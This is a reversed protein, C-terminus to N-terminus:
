EAKEKVYSGPAPEIPPSSPTARRRAARQGAHRRAAGAVRVLGAVLQGPGERRGRVLADPTPTSRRRRPHGLLQAQEEGAPQDGRRHPRERRARVDVDGRCCSRARTPRSGRCSTTKRPPTSSRRCTSRRWTWRSASSRPARGARAAQEGPLHQAPVLLVDPRAPQHRRQELVAPRVRAAAKGKLYGNVVYPWILDNARLSPSCRPWSAARSCAARASRRRGRPSAEGPHGAARDRRHRQLRADDDAADHQGGPARRARGAGRARQGAAHRRRLLRAHQGQRGQHDGAGVDIATLM